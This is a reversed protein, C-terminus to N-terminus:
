WSRIESKSQGCTNHDQTTLSQGFGVRVPRVNQKDHGVLVTPISETGVAIPQDLRRMEIAQRRFACVERM